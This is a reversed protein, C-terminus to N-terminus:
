SDFDEILQTLQETTYVNIGTKLNNADVDPLSPVFVDVLRIPVEEGFRFVGIINNYSRLTYLPSPEKSFFPPNVYDSTIAVSKASFSLFSFCAAAIFIIKVIKNIM